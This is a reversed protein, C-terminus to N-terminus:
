MMGKFGMRVLGLNNKMARRNVRPGPITQACFEREEFVKKVGLLRVWGVM